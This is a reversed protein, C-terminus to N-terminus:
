QRQHPTSARSLADPSALCYRNVGIATTAVAAILSFFAATTRSGGTNLSSSSLHDRFRNHTPQGQNGQHTEAQPHHNRGGRGGEDAGLYRGAAIRGYSNCPVEEELLIESRRPGIADPDFVAIDRYVHVAMFDRPVPRVAANGVVAVEHFCDRNGMSLDTIEVVSNVETITAYNGDLPDVGRVVLAGSDKDLIGVVVKGVDPGIAVPFAPDIDVAAANLEVVNLSIVVFNVTDKVARAACSKVM